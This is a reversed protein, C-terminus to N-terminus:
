FASNSGFTGVVDTIKRAAGGQSSIAYDAVSQGVAVRFIATTDNLWRIPYVLGDQSHLPASKDTAVTLLQLSNKDVWLAQGTSNTVYTKSTYSAPESISTVQGNKLDLKHWGDSTQLSLENYTTRYSVWVEKELIAQKHTGDPNVKYYKTGDTYYVHGLASAASRIQNASGLQARSNTRYDYSIIRQRDASDAAVNAVMQYVVRSGIWDMVQVSEGRDLVLTDGNSVDILTVTNLLRGDSTRVNDKTSILVARDGDPSSTLSINGSELGSGKLLLKKNKGDIDVTHVDYTGTEKSVYVEKINPTLIVDTPTPTGAKLTVKESRYGKATVTAVVDAGDSDEMTLVMKGDKDSLAAAQGSTVEAGQIPKNSLYDRAMVTYQAGVAELKFTGLPNSGWGIVVKRQLPAFAIRELQVTVTGLKIKEIRAKGDTGTQAESQGITVKVNKLPQGTTNDLVVVSASVRVGAANLLAYRTKPYAALGGIALVLVVVSLKFWWRSWFHKKPKPESSQNSAAQDQADLLEDSETRIIDEVAEDTQKDELPSDAAEKKPSEPTPTETETKAVADAPHDTQKALDEPLEPAGQPKNDTPDAM